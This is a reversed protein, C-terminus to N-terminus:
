EREESTKNVLKVVRDDKIGNSAVKMLVEIPIQIESCIIDCERLHKNLDQAPGSYVCVGGKALVYLKDFTM